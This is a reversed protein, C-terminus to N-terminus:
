RDRQVRVRGMVSVVVRYTGAQSQVVFTGAPVATGRPFFTLPRRPSQVIAVGSALDRVSYDYRGGDPDQWYYRKGGSEVILALSDNQSIAHTRAWLLSSELAHTSGWLVWEQHMRQAGPAAAGAMISLLGLVVLMEVVGTGSSNRTL